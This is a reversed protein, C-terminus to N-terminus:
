HSWFPYYWPLAYNLWVMTDFLFLGGAIFLFGVNRWNTPLLARWGTVMLISLPVIAPFIQRALRGKEADYRVIGYGVIIAMSTATFLLSLLVNKQEADLVFGKTKLFRLMYIFLGIIALSSFIFLVIHDLWYVFYGLIVWFSAFTDRLYKLSLVYTIGELSVGGQLFL